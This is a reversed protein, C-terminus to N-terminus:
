KMDGLELRMVIGMSSLEDRMLKFAYSTEIPYINGTNGCAPCRLTGKRFDYIAIHGCTPNGCVYLITGDSQDLLRDKIVMSAGHAILTDREMEGFRLGGQRSRGETPQRTLIQVPGRSRAHFKSAVMHHLKQYYIVGMFIDVEFKKGTIGDYMVENGSERFGYKKLQERLSREPEGDFITSDINEGSMTSVKAGMMELVHGLTMRSPVSHPNFLLDPIIGDETFPMDEQAAVYGIVGKQGHRSAFKDGPQPIRDGRVKVKIIRSNSESVTLFVNDVYGSETPRVTVSSERRRLPGLKDANEEELFRPPSTKGVLVDSGEVKSEPFIIGNEDLNKYYEEARAGLVDHSPIEFKDEQGGPYRREEATYTRFFSSRGLGREISAKNMIIADQMNYGHYSVIAVVFNQGAPKRRYKIFDMVKTTVLPIQPYHLLHGRTDTRIRYNAQPLGISQKIMASAITIRPSSNHEPYPILSAVVGLIMSADIECHTHDMSLNNTGKFHAHCEDCELTVDSNGPNIWTVNDRYLVKGCDPCNDPFEFPFVSIYANEEEEADLWEIAGSSILDNVTYEGMRLKELMEENMVTKGENVVFLPRRLRGRDCNIIVENTNSDYKVNVENSLKGSRRLNRITDTLIAPDNHYGIFDGNLYIRGSAEEKTVEHIDMNQLEEMVIDPDIGQTVNIILSANKVLGCNQGEPTENPCIRGWQTPHLDRAEFHPQSRTLPSIIRRLHSLTSMNSTRDLLQSVGTRGGIWNGTAMSHLVKQTLLDQRVAPRLRIGRKKNYTKELQYKLDKMVSQFANRFLEDLLDGSLKIRKNAYHDKDDVHRMGLNLELLSRAMRGLYIAKKLRDSVDDGLHPLLARDLMQTIKKDRFEKAQGAAFRKELYSLADENNNIGNPPLIKLNRSDEINAYILPDMRPDTYIAEHIDVDKDIGLAKMLIVLPITGAVTPISVNIIGDSGKEMSILARFGSKQSFIKAVEVRSDYKEEYEVLIKNPALDELSVIVRESGGIIFYGGPDTPDEDVYRLKNERTEDIPGNNKEIYLDLNQESLTCIKSRVMVPIEGIKITNADREIGDEVIRLRLMIPAMYNLDRLRAEQPTIQNTAGSAEKIEPKDVWITPDGTAKGNQRERGFYIKIDKGKTKSPDLDIVGPTADDSIKTEDVIQQMINDPNNKSAYFYNMSDIQYNVVSESKFFADLIPNM